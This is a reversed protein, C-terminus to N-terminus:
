SIFTVFIQFKFDDRIKLIESMIKLCFKHDLFM